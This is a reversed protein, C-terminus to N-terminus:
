VSTQTSVILVAKGQVAAQEILEHARKAESLPMRKWIIPKIKKQALLDFLTTLDEKFWDVHKQHWSGISYFTTSRKNPWIKWFLLRLFDLPVNGGKGMFSQYFGYSVLTGGARLVKFSGKLVDGGIADFVIDVGEGNTMSLVREVFDEGNYDIHTAGLSTVIERKSESATGYMELDLLKGLQLLATGVAGGAGHVLIRQGSQVKATRNLMQYATIYSLILSVAEAPDLEDPVVVLRDEPLCIYESYAGIVTLEAVRQGVKFKTVNEGLKDVVGIMDYGPSFPPKQKVGRYKGKRVLTDTFAASTSLVKIRVEDSKPKPLSKEEVIKLVDPDGFKTIIVRKFSM